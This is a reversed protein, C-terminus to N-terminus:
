PDLPDRFNKELIDEYPSFAIAHQADPAGQPDDDESAKGDPGRKSLAFQGVVFGLDSKCRSDFTSLVEHQYYFEQLGNTQIM